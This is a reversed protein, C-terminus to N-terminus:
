RHQHHRAAAPRAPPAGQPELIAPEEATHLDQTHPPLPHFSVPRRQRSQPQPHQQQQRCHPLPPQTAAGRYSSSCPQLAQQRQRGAAQQSPTSHGPWWVGAHWRGLQEPKERARPGAMTALPEPRCTSSESNRQNKRRWTTWAVGGKSLLHTSNELM